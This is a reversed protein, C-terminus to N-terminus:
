MLGMPGGVNHGVFKAGATPGTVGDAWEVKQCEPSWEGM